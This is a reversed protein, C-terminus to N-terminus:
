DHTTSHLHFFYSIRDVTENIEVFGLHSDDVRLHKLTQPIYPLQGKRMEYIGARLVGPEGVRHPDHFECCLHKVRQHHLVQCLFHLPAVRTDFAIPLEEPETSKQVVSPVCWERM